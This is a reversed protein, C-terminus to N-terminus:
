WWKTAFHIMGKSTYQKQKRAYYFYVGKCAVHDMSSIETEMARLWVGAETQLVVSIPSTCQTTHINAGWSGSTSM